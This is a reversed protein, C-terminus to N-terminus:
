DYIFIGENEPSLLNLFQNIRLRFLKSKLSKIKLKEIKKLFSSHIFKQDIKKGTPSFYFAKSKKVSKIANQLVDPKIIMGPGGGFPTDDVSKSNNFAYDRIDVTNIEFLGKKLGKGILSYELPGPFIKPFLTLINFIM